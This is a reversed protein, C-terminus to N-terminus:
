TRRFRRFITVSFMSVMILIPIAALNLWILRREITEVDQRLQQRVERLEQRTAVIRTRLAEIGQRSPEAGGEAGQAAAMDRQFQALRETLATESDQLRAAAARGIEAIRTFPRAGAARNRLASLDQTGSLEELLALLFDGNAAFARAPQGPQGRAVWFRDDLIDTDAIAVLDLADTELKRGPPPTGDVAVGDPLQDAFASRAHGAVRAALVLRESGSPHAAWLKQPDTRPVIEDVDVPIGHDGTFLLPSFHTTAGMLPRLIGATGVTIPGLGAFAPDAADRNKEGLTLWVLHQLQLPRGDDRRVTISSALDRDGAVRGIDLQLGWSPGFLGLTSFSAGRAAQDPLREAAAESLPDVLVLARGGAMLFQDIAYQAAPPLDRPHVLLLVDIVAPDLAATGKASLDAITVPKVDFDAQMDRYATFAPLVRGGFALAGGLPLTSVVAVQRRDPSALRAIMRTLQLDLSPEEEPRLFPIAVRDAATSGVLGFYVPDGGKALPLGLLGDQVAHDEADSFPEPTERQLILRDGAAAAYDELRAEVRRAYGALAPSSAAIRDSVVFRLTVPQHLDDLVARSAADLAHRRDESLDLRYGRLAGDAWLNVGVTAALALALIALGTLRHRLPRRM